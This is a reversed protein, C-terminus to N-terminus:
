SMFNAHHSMEVVDKNKRGGERVRCCPTPPLHFGFWELRVGTSM